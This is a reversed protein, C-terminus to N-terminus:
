SYSSGEGRNEKRDRRQNTQKYAKRDAKVKRFFAIKSM